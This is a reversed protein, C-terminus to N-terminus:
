GFKTRVLGLLSPQWSGKCSFGYIRATLAVREVMCPVVMGGNGRMKSVNFLLEPSQKAAHSTQGDAGGIRSTRHGTSERHAPVRLDLRSDGLGPSCELGRCTTTPNRRPEKYLTGIGMGAKSLGSM